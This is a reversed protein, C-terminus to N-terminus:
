AWLTEYPHYKEEKLIRSVFSMGIENDVATEQSPTSFIIRLCIFLLSFTRVCNKKNFILLSHYNFCQDKSCGFSASHIVTVILIQLTQLFWRAGNTISRVRLARIARNRRRGPVPNERCATIHEYAEQASLTEHNSTASCESGWTRSAAPKIIEKAQRMGWEQWKAQM